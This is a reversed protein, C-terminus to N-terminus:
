FRWPNRLGLAWIEDRIGDSASVFPNDPPISYYPATDAHADVDLRLLKGLLVDGRQANCPPDNASGGDGVGVYLYGDPGFQLEGGNHNANTPHAIALLIVGSSPDATDPQGSPVHYRAVVLGGSVDTYYIFFLGNVSFSPHFAVSLLGREGCCSVLPSLDLFSGPLIQSGDWIRIAGTQLTLFLRGDGASAISTIPGLGDALTSLEIAPPSAVAARGKSSGVTAGALVSIVLLSIGTLRSALRNPHIGM